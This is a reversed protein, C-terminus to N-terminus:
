NTRPLTDTQELLIRRDPTSGGADETRLMASWPRACRGHVGEFEKERAAVHFLDGPGRSFRVFSPVFLWRAPAFAFAYCSRHSDSVFSLKAQPYGNPARSRRHTESPQKLAAPFFLQLQSINNLKEAEEQREPNVTVSVGALQSLTTFPPRYRYTEKFSRL